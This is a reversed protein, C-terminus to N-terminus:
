LLEYISPMPKGNPTTQKHRIILGLEELQKFAKFYQGPDTRIGFYDRGNDDDIYNISIDSHSATFPNGRKHSLYSLSLYVKISMKTLSNLNKLLQENVQLSYSRMM